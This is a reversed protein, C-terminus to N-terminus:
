RNIYGAEIKQWYNSRWRSVEYTIEHDIPEEALIDQFNENELETAEDDDEFEYEDNNKDTM